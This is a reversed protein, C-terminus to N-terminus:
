HVENFAEVDVIKVGLMGHKELVSCINTKVDGLNLQDVIYKVEGRQNNLVGGLHIRGARGFGCIAIGVKKFVSMTLIKIGPIALFLQGDQLRASYDRTALLVFRFLGSPNICSPNFGSYDLHFFFPIFRTTM